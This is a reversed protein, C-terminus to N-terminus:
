LKAMLMKIKHDYSRAVLKWFKFQFFFHFLLILSFYDYLYTLQKWSRRISYFHNFFDLNNSGQCGREQTELIVDIM